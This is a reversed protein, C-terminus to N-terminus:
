LISTKKMLQVNIEHGGDFIFSKSQIGANKLINVQKEPFDKNYYPDNSAFVQYIDTEKFNPYINYDIDQALSGCWFVAKSVKAKGLTIWRALTAAGQSFGLANIKLNYLETKPKIEHFFLKDLYNVYDKIDCQRDEKTMWSAGVDGSNGKVYLRMLAEPAYIFSGADALESFQLIFSGALQRYGHLFIWIDKTNENLEGLTYYRATRTVPIHHEKFM